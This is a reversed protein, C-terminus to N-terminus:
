RVARGASKDMRTDRGMPCNILRNGALDDVIQDANEM